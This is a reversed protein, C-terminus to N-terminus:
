KLAERFIENQRIAQAQLLAEGGGPYRATITKIDPLSIAVPLTDIILDGHFHKLNELPESKLERESRNFVRPNAGIKQCAVLAARATGGAGVIAVNKPSGILALFGDVDTNDGFTTGDNLRVLTNIAGAARANEGLRDAYKMAVEKFPATISLGRIRKDTVIEEFTEFSAITYAADIGHQRFLPNHITPSLSHGAPNGAIAFIHKAYLADRMEGYIALANGLTLQGPAASNTAAVFTLKSGLFPALIRSFLGHEGMGIVTIDKAHELLAFNEALTRPAVALKTYACGYARMAPIPALDFGKFDHHSLIVRERPIDLRLDPKWEVDILDIGADLAQVPSPAQGGRYTLIIPKPTRARLAHLDIAGLHEARLEIMDCDVGDIARLAAEFTEEYITAVLKM